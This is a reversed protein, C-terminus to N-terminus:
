YKSVNLIVSLLSESSKSVVNDSVYVGCTAVYLYVVLGVYLETIMERTGVLVLMPSAYM